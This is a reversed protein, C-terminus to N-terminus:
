SGARVLGGDVRLIAGSVYGALPSALYAVASAVEEPTGFRGIDNPALDRVAGREIEEWTHGWDFNESVKTLIEELAPVRIAGPAVVNSTVGTNKLERALSIALNHRAALTAGYHPYSESPQQAMAGGIQIVRGWGRECMAPVLRQILQVAALVNIRYARLWDDPTADTWSRHAYEGANNVLIDVQGNALAATAVQDVGGDQSLDGLALEAAGGAEHISAVVEEARARDRGHVVTVVQEAALLQAIAKGLGSTSGTVLARKGALKLDM